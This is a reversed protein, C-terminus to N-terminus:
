KDDGAISGIFAMVLVVLYGGVVVLILAAALVCVLLGLWQQATATSAYDTFFEVIMIFPKKIMDWFKYCVYAIFLGAFLHAFSLRKM